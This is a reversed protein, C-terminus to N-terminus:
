NIKRSLQSSDLSIARYMQDTIRSAQYHPDKSPAPAWTFAQALTPSHTKQGVSLVSRYVTSNHSMFLVTFFLCHGDDRTRKRWNAPRSSLPRSFPFTLTLSEPFLLFAVGTDPRHKFPAHFCHSLSLCVYVSVNLRATELWCLDKPKKNGYHHLAVSVASKDVQQNSFSAQTNVTNGRMLSLYGDVLASDLLLSGLPRDPSLMSRKELPPPKPGLSLCHM